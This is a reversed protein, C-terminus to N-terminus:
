MVFDVLMYKAQNLTMSDGFQNLFHKSTPHGKHPDFSSRVWRKQKEQGQAISDCDNWLLKKYAVAGSCV